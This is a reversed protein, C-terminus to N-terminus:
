EHVGGNETAVPAPETKPSLRKTLERAVNVAAAQGNCNLQRVFANRTPSWLWGYSRVFKFDERSLRVELKLHIRNDAKDEFIRFGPGVIEPRESQKDKWELHQIRTRIRRIEASSNGLSFGPFGIKEGRKLASEARAILEAPGELGQLNGQQRYLSNAKKMFAHNAEASALNEKLKAIADPDDSSIAQGFNKLGAEIRDALKLMEWGKRHNDEIRKLDRRHRGESHHGVLIPQGFPIAQSIQRAQDLRAQGEKRLRDVRRTLRENRREQKQEYENM